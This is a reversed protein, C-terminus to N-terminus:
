TLSYSILQIQGITLKDNMQLNTEPDVSTVANKRSGILRKVQKWWAKPCSSYKPRVEYFQLKAKKIEASIQRRLSIFLETKNNKFAKNRTDMLTKIKQTM